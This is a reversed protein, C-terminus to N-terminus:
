KKGESSYENSCAYYNVFFEYCILKKFDFLQIFRYTNASGSWGMPENRLLVHTDKQFVDKPVDGYDLAINNFNFRLSDFLIRIVKIAKGDYSYRRFSDPFDFRKLPQIIKLKKGDILYSESFPDATDTAWPVMPPKIERFDAALALSCVNRGALFQESNLTDVGAFGASNKM